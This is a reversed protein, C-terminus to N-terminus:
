RPGHQWTSKAGRFLSEGHVSLRSGRVLCWARVKGGGVGAGGGGGGDADLLVVALEGETALAESDVPNKYPAAGILLTGHPGLNWANACIGEHQQFEARAPRTGLYRAIPPDKLGEAGGTLIVTSFVSPGQQRRTLEAIWPGHDDDPNVGHLRTLFEDRRSKWQFDTANGPLVFARAGDKKLVLARRHQLTEPEIEVGGECHFYQSYQHPRLDLGPRSLLDVFAFGLGVIQVVFRRHRTPAYADHWLEAVEIPGGTKLLGLGHRPPYGGWCCGHGLAKLPKLTDDNMVLCNHADVSYSYGRNERARPGNYIRKDTYLWTAPDGILTQGQTHLVFSMMDWHTHGHPMSDTYHSVALYDAAANWASRFFTYGGHPYQATAPHPLHKADPKKVARGPAFFPSLGIRAPKNQVGGPGVPFRKLSRALGAPTQYELGGPEHGLARALAALKPNMVPVALSGFLYAMSGGFEDGFDAIIGNPKTARANFEVWKALRTLQPQLFVRIGNAKALAQPSLYHFLIHYQYKTSHEAYGGDAFVNHKFHHAITSRGQTLLQKAVSFEPFMVGAVFPMHGHDVLHHNDKRMADGCFRAFQMAYFWFQKVLWFLDADPILGPLQLAGSHFFDLWRLCRYTVTLTENGHGGFYRDHDEFFGEELVFPHHAVFSKMLALAKSLYVTKGTLAFATTLESVFCNRGLSGGIEHMGRKWDPGPAGSLDVRQFSPWSNTFQDKLLANAKDLVDGRGDIELWATGHMYFAWKPSSRTRFHEAVVAQAATLDGGARAAALKKGTAGPLTLHDLFQEDSVARQDLFPIDQM